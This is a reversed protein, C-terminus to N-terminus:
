QTSCHSMSCHCTFLLPLPLISLLKNDLHETCHMLFYLMASAATSDGAAAGPQLVVAFGAPMHTVAYELWALLRLVATVKMKEVATLLGERCDIEGLLLVVESGAPLHSVAAWFQHKTYCCSGPRLHWVKAGTILLPQLLCRQSAVAVSRWAGSHCAFSLHTFQTNNCRM